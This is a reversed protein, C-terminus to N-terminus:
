HRVANSGGEALSPAPPVKLRLQSLLDQCNLIKEVLDLRLYAYQNTAEFGIRSDEGVLDFLRRALAIEDHLIAAAAAPNSERIQIFRIQNATSRFHIRATEAIRWEDDMAPSPHTQRLQNLADVGRQWSDALKEFQTQFTQRSYPGRWGDLHDFPFTVMTSNFGSPRAFLLNAPGLSQPGNYCVSIGFPFEGFADSLLNWASVVGHAAADGFRRRAVNLLAQPVSPRPSRSFEDALELNPSPSGGLTWGLMLGDVGAQAVNSLHQAVLRMAPIYPVSSLEWTNAVQMKAATKLGRQRALEWQRLSPAGPGVASISYEDVTGTYDGRTLPTGWESVSLVWASDPLRDLIGPLWEQPTSWVYYLFKGSSGAQRMGRELLSCVEANIVQPGRAECRPCPSDTNRSFCNTLNESYAITLLGGLAPVQEFLHRVANALFDQVPQTSTCLATLDPLHSNRRPTVEMGRLAPHKEFFAPPMARPENLYILVEIGFKGCREVLRNLNAIREQWGNSLEPALEWPYLTNLVGQLWIANVGCASLEALYGEPIDNIGEGLLPDGYRLFYPYVM